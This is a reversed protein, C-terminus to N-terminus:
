SFVREIARSFTTQPHMLRVGSARAGNKVRSLLSEDSILRHLAHSLSAVSDPEYLLGNVEDEIMYPFPGYDPAIVPVGVYLAEMASKCFGEPFRSQSPTVVVSAQGLHAFIEDHPIPGLVKVNESLRDKSVREALVANSSGDGIFYLRLDKQSSLSKFAEFLDIVGKDEEMRGIYLISFSTDRLVCRPALAKILAEHPADLGNNFEIVAHEKAGLRIAEDRVYPGHAVVLGARKCLFQNSFRYAKSMSPLALANHAFLVFRAGALRAALWVFLAFPGDVGCLVLSPKFRLTDTMFAFISGVFKLRRIVKNKQTSRAGYEHVDRGDIKTRQTRPGFSALRFIADQSYFLVALLFKDPGGEPLEGLRPFLLKAEEIARGGKIYIIKNVM